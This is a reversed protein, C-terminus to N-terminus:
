NTRYDNNFSEMADTIELEQIDDHKKASGVQHLLITTLDPGIRKKDRKMHYLIEDGSIAGANFKPYHKQFIAELETYLSSSLLGRKLAIRNAIGMGVIVAEGHCVEYNSSAELAHGYCHGYNLLNRIGTDFEDEEFYTRKIEM